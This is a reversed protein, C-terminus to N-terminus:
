FIFRIGVFSFISVSCAAAFGVYFPKLGMSKLLSFRTSLGVASMAIALSIEALFKIKEIFSDWKSEILFGFATNTSAIGFDGITRILGFLIFGLIFFPFVSLFSFSSKLENSKESKLYLYGMIPIVFLMSVNRVLKTVTAIDLTIPSNFQQSYILGAGAVQATEHIATGLFLGISEENGSFLYFALYPYVLMAFIGFLTINAIAYTIEEKKANIVPGTAVIATAGCITTGVTILTSLKSSIGLFKSLLNIAFFTLLICMLILPISYLGIEYIDYLGLRIGLCIIGVRLLYKCSFDIGASYISKLQTMNAVVMGLIISLMISSIPSKDFGMLYIGIIDSLIFSSIAILVSILIGPLIKM